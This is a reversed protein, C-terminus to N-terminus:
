FWLPQSWIFRSGWDDLM